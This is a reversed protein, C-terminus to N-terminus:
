PERVSHRPLSPLWCRRHPISRSDAALAIGVTMKQSECSRNSLELHWEQPAVGAAAVSLHGQPGGGWRCGLSYKVSRSTM